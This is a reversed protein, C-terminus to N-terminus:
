EPITGGLEVLLEEAKERAGVPFRYGYEAPRRLLDTLVQVVRKELMTQRAVQPTRYKGSCSGDVRCYCSDSCTCNVPCENAHDCMIASSSIPSKEM